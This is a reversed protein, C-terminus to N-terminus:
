EKFLKDLGTYKLTMDNGLEYICKKNHECVVFAEDMLKNRLESEEKTYTDERTECNIYNTFDEDPHFNLSEELLQQFFVKVDDITKITQIM